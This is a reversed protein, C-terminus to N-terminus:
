HARCQQVEPRSVPRISRGHLLVFCREQFVDYHTLLPVVLALPGKKM